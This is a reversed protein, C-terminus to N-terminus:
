RQIFLPMTWETDRGSRVSIVNEAGDMLTLTDKLKETSCNQNFEIYLAIAGLSFINEFKLYYINCYNTFIYINIIYYIYFHEESYKTHYYFFTSIGPISVYGSLYSDDQYPHPSEQVTHKSPPSVLFSCHSYIAEM